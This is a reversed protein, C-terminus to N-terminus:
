FSKPTLRLYCLFTLFILIILDNEKNSISFLFNRQELYFINCSIHKGRKAKDVDRCAMVVFYKGSKTLTSACSLGLGSSAGTVVVLERLGIKLGGLVKPLEKEKKPTYLPLEMDELIPTKYNASKSKSSSSKPQPALTASLQLTNREQIHIAKTSIRSFGASPTFATVASAAIVAVAILRLM